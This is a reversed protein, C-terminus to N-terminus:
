LWYRAKFFAVMEPDTKAKKSVGAYVEMLTEYENNEDLIKVYSELSKIGGRHKGELILCNILLNERFKKEKLFLRNIESFIFIEDETPKTNLSDYDNLIFGSYFKQAESSSVFQNLISGLEVYIEINNPSYNLAEKYFKISLNLFEEKTSSQDVFNKLKLHDFLNFKIFNVKALSVRTLVWDYGDFKSIKKNNLEPRNGPTVSPRVQSVQTLRMTSNSKSVTLNNKSATLNNKSATLNKSTPVALNFKSTTKSTSTVALNNKSAPAIKSNKASLNSKSGTKTAEVKKPTNLLIALNGVKEQHHQSPKTISKSKSFALNEKSMKSIPLIKKANTEVKAPLTPNGVVGDTKKVESKITTTALSKKIVPKKVVTKDNKETRAEELITDDMKYFNLHFDGWWLQSTFKQSPEAIINDPNEKETDLACLLSKEADLLFTYIEEVKFFKLDAEGLNSIFEFKELQLTGLSNVYKPEKTNTLYVLIKFVNLNVNLFNFKNKLNHTNLEEFNNLFRYLIIISQFLIKTQAKRKKTIESTKLSTEPINTTTMNLKLIETQAELFHLNMKFFKQSKPNIKKMEETLEFLFDYVIETALELKGLKGYCKSLSLWAVRLVDNSLQYWDEVLLPQSYDSKQQFLQEQNICYKQICDTLYYVAENLVSKEFNVQQSKELAIGLLLKGAFSDTDKGVARRLFVIAENIKGLFLLNRGYHINADLSKPNVKCAMLFKDSINLFNQEENQDLSSFSSGIKAGVTNMTKLKWSLLGQVEAAKDSQGAALLRHYEEEMARIKFEDSKDKSVGLSLLLGEIEDACFSDKAIMNEDVVDKKKQLNNPIPFFNNYEIIEELILGIQLQCHSEEEKENESKDNLKSLLNVLKIKITELQPIATELAIQGSFKKSFKLTENLNRRYSAIHNNLIKLKSVNFDDGSLVKKDMLAQEWSKFLYKEKLVPIEIANQVICMAKHYETEVLPIILDCKCKEICSTKHKFGDVSRELESSKAEFKKCKICQWEISESIELDKLLVAGKESFDHKLIISPPKVKLEALYKEVKPNSIATFKIETAENFADNNKTSFCFPCNIRVIQSGAEKDIEIAKEGFLDLCTYCFIHKCSKIKTSFYSWPRFVVGSCLNCLLDESFKNDDELFHPRRVPKDRRITIHYDSSGQMDAALVHLTVSTDGLLLDVSLENPAEAGSSNNIVTVKAKPNIAFSKITINKIFGVNLTYFKESPQFDPRLFGSEFKINSLGSES